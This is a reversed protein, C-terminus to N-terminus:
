GDYQQPRRREDMTRAVELAAPQLDATVKAAVGSCNTAIVEFVDCGEKVFKAVAGGAMFETDDAHAAFILLTKDGM